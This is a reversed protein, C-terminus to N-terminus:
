QQIQVFIFGTSVAHVKQWVGDMLMAHNISIQSGATTEKINLKKRVHFRFSYSGGGNGGELESDSHM